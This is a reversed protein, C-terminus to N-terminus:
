KKKQQIKGERILTNITKKIVNETLSKTYDTTLYEILVDKILERLKSEDVTSTVKMPAITEKVVQRQSPIIDAVDEINFTPNPGGMQPIPNNIMAQKIAEPLNSNRIQEETITPPKRTPDGMAQLQEQPVENVSLYKVEDGYGDYDDDDRKNNNRKPTSSSEDVKNMIARANGLINKLKNVDVDSM